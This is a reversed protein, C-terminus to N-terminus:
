GRSVIVRSPRLLREGDRYGTQLVQAVHDAPVDTQDTQGIAEHVTPDFPEGLADIPEVDYRQLTGLFASQTARINGIFSEVSSENVPATGTVPRTRQTDDHTEDHTEDNAEHHPEDHSEGLMTGHQLALELHDALPLMDMLIRNREERAKENARNEWRKRLNDTEAQLRAYKEQWEVDGQSGEDNKKELQQLAARMWVLEADLNKIDETQQQIAESKIHLQEKQESIVQAQEAAILKLKEVQIYLERNSRVVGRGQNRMPQNMQRVVQSVSGSRSGRRRRQEALLRERPLQYTLNHENFLDIFQNM